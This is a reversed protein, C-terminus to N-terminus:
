EPGKRARELRWRELILDAVSEPSRGDGIWVYGDGSFLGPIETSDFRLPMIASGQREKILERLARWELGCWDKREYEACLFVAILESEERYLRQLYTDLDPRAFEAEYWADYLVRERGLGAALAVAVRSVFPRREGAFSLAVAFRKAPSPPPTSAQSVPEIRLRAAISVRTQAALAEDEQYANVFLTVTGERQCTVKFYRPESDEDRKLLVQIRPPAIVCDPPGQVEIRYRIVEEDPPRFVTGPASEGVPLDAISLRPSDPQRVAVALDFPEGVRAEQPHSVDLRISEQSYKPAANSAHSPPHRPRRSFLGGIHAALDSLVATWGVETGMSKTHVLDKLHETIPSESDSCGGLVVAAPVAGPSPRFWGRTPSTQAGPRAQLTRAMADQLQSDDQGSALAIPQVIRLPAPVFALDAPDFVVPISPPADPGPAAMAAKLFAIDWDRHSEPGAAGAALRRDLGSSCVVLVLDVRATQSAV